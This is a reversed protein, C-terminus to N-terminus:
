FYSKFREKLHSYWGKVFPEGYCYYEFLAFAYGIWYSFSKVKGPDWLSINFGIIKGAISFPLIFGHWMGLLIYNYDKAMVANEPAPACGYLFIVLIAALLFILLMIKKM